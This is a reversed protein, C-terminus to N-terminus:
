VCASSDPVPPMTQLNPSSGDKPLGHMEERSAISHGPRLNKASIDNLIEPNFHLNPGLHAKKQL